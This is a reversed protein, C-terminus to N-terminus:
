DARTLQYFEGPETGWLQEGDLDFGREAVSLTVSTLVSDAGIRIQTGRRTSNIICTKPDVTGRWDQNEARWIQACGNELGASLVDLSLDAQADPKDWLDAYAAADNFIWARQEVKGDARSQLQLIRQRYVSLDAQHNVQLYLWEGPGLPAIRVRRDRMAADSGLATEFTGEMDAALQASPSSSPEPAHACACLSLVAGLAALKLTM